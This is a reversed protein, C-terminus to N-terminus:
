ISEGRGIGFYRLGHQKVLEPDLINRGDFIAQYKLNSKLAIFDPSWFSKWETCIALVDAGELTENASEVVQVRESSGFYEILTASALPDFVKVNALNVVLSEILSTAPAGAISASGPKFSAGWVAVTKGKLEGKFFKWIKRFILDKQRENIKAVTELLGLDDSRERLELAIKSVNDALAKGGYGCGPYLYDRGIRPDSGMCERVVEIDVYSREALSAMENMFSLRTALMAHGAFCAFEAERTSVSKIVNKVRNFPYFLGGVKSLANKNDCGVVICDPRSFDSLARGERLLLPVSCVSNLAHHNEDTEKHVDLTKENIHANSISKLVYSKLHANFAQAEGISSPTLIIFCSGKNITPMLLSHYRNLADEPSIEALLVFDFLLEGAEFGQEDSTSVRLRSEECQARYLEALGPENSEAWVTNNEAFHLVSNGVSALLAAAVKSQLSDGIVAIKL